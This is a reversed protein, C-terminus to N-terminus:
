GKVMLWYGTVLLWYGSHVDVNSKMAVRTMRPTFNFHAVQRQFQSPFDGGVGEMLPIREEELFITVQAQSYVKIFFAAYSKRYLRYNIVLVTFYPTVVTTVVIIFLERGSM